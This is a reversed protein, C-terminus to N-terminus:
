EKMFLKVRTSNEYIVRLSYIGNRLKVTNFTLQNLGSVGDTNREDVLRGRMDFVQTTIAGDNPIIIFFYVDDTAPNPFPNLVTFDNEISTCLKNNLLVQDTTGNVKKIEVCAVDFSNGELVEFSSNFTYSQYKKPNLLGTWTEKVPTGDDLYASLELVSILVTGNNYITALVQVNDTQRITYVNMVAADLFPSAVVIDKTITDYCGFQNEVILQATYTGTDNYVHITDQAFSTNSGSTPDGFDWAYNLGSGAGSFNVTLPNAGFDSSLTFAAVPLPSVIVPYAITASCGQASIATLSVIVTGTSPFVFLPDKQPSSGFAGFQWNWGTVTSGAVTSLDNFQVPTNVCASDESFSPVPLSNVIVNMTDSDTCGSNYFILVVSYTGASPYLHTPNQSPNIPSGDGFNWYWNPFGLVPFSNDTFTTPSNECATDASFLAVPTQVVTVINTVTDTCNANTTVILQVTYNGATDYIHSPSPAIAFNNAGSAPDGFDWAWTTVYFFTDAVTSFDTFNTIGGTCSQSVIFDALPKDAVNVVLQSTGSCGSDSVATLVVTYSGPSSYLHSPNQVSSTSTDGFSWLWTLISDPSPVTTSDTFFTTDGECTASVTFSVTPNVGNVLVNITDKATCGNANQVTLTYTSSGTQTIIISSTTDGTSWLYSVAQQAGSILAVSGGACFNTDPGLSTNIPFSDIVVNITDSYRFCGLTDTVKVYYQGAQTIYFVSDTSSDQWLFDYGTTDLQTNWILTDGYCITVTSSPFPSFNGPYSINITDSSTYGFINTVIVSVDVLDTTISDTTQGDGWQYSTFWDQHSNVKVPCFGYNVTVDAGLNVPPAYKDSLYKEVQNRQTATLTSDYIIVEAIDGKWFRNSNGRDLGLQLADQFFPASKRASIIKYAIMPAFNFSQVGNVYINGAGFAGTATWFNSTNNEGIIFINADNTVQGTILGCYEPFTAASSDNWNALIFLEGINNFYNSMYMIDDIGDFRIIPFKNLINISDIISPRQISNSQVADNSNGSLDQWQAVLNGNLIVGNDAAFWLRLGPITNPQAFTLCCSAILIVSM